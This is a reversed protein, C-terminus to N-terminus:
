ETLDRYNFLRELANVRIIKKTNEDAHFWEDIEQMSRGCGTCFPQGNFNIIFCESICPSDNM